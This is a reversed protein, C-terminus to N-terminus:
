LRAPSPDIRRRLAGAAAAVGGAAGRAGAVRHRPVRETALAFVGGVDMGARAADGV